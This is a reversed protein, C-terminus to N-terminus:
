RLLNIEPYSFKLPGQNRFGGTLTIMTIAKINAWLSGMLRRVSYIHITESDETEVEYYLLFRRFVEM